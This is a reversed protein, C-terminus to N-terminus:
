TKTVENLKIYSEDLLNIETLRCNEEVQEIETRLISDPKIIDLNM